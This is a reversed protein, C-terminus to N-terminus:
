KPAATLIEAGDERVLVLDEIRVGGWEPLYIGPEISHVMGAELVDTATEALRPAEHIDIGVGHGTGHGFSEGYGAETIISRALGDVERGSKGAGVGALAAEEAELVITYIEQFQSTRGGSCYTRTIDSCYGDLIVGFDVVVPDGAGIVYDGPLYHPMASNTGAAVIVDFSPKQAGLRRFEQEIQMALERETKGPVLERAVMAHAEDAIKIARRMIALEYEDKILRLKEVLGPTAVLSCDEGLRESLNQFDTVSTTSPDFGIQKTGLEAATAAVQELIPGTHTVVEYDPSQVAAQSTYRGDTILVRRFPTVMLNGASGTFGSLYRRNSETGVLLADIGAGDFGAVLREIRDTIPASDSTANSTENMNM